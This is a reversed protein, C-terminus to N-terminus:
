QGTLVDVRRRADGQFLALDRPRLENLMEKLDDINSDPRHERPLRSMGEIVFAIAEALILAERGNSVTVAM